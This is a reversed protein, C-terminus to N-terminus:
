SLLLSFVKGHRAMQWISYKRSAEVSGDGKCDRGDGPGLAQKEDSKGEDREGEQFGGADRAGAGAQRGSQKGGTQDGITTGRERRCATPCRPRSDPACPEPDEQARDLESSSGAAEADQTAQLWAAVKSDNENEVGDDARPDISEGGEVNRNGGESVGQTAGADTGVTGAPDCRDELEKIEERIRERMASKRVEEEEEMRAMDRKLGQLMSREKEILDEMEATEDKGVLGQRSTKEERALERAGMENRGQEGGGRQMCDQASRRARLAEAEREAQRNRQKTRAAEWASAKYDDAHERGRGTSNDAVGGGTSLGDERARALRPSAPASTTDTKAETSEISSAEAKPQLAETLSSAAPATPPSSQAQARLFIGPEGDRSTCEPQTSTQTAHANLDGDDVAGSDEQCCSEDSPLGHGARGSRKQEEGGGAGRRAEHRDKCTERDMRREVIESVGARSQLGASPGDEGCCSHRGEFNMGVDDLPATSMCPSRAGHERRHAERTEMEYRKKEESRVGEQPQREQM